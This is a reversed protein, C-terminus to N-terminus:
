GRTPVARAKEWEELQALSYLVRQGFKFFPPGVRKNRWNALTKEPIRLRESAEKATLNM